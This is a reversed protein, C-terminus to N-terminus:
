LGELNPLEQAAVECMYLLASFEAIQGNEDFSIVESLFLHLQIKLPPKIKNKIQTKTMYQQM